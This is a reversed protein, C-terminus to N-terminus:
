GHFGGLEGLVVTAAMGLALALVLLYSLLLMLARRM